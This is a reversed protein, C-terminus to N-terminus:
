RVCQILWMPYATKAIAPTEKVVDYLETYQEPAQLM